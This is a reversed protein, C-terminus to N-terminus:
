FFIKLLDNIATTIGILLSCELINIVILTGKRNKKGQLIKVIIYIFYAILLINFLEFITFM